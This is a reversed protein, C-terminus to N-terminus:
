FVILLRPRASPQKRRRSIIMIVVTLAIISIIIISSVMGVIVWKTPFRGKIRKGSPDSRPDLILHM